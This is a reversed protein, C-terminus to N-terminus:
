RPKAVGECVVVDDLPRCRRLDVGAASLMAGVDESDRYLYLTEPNVPGAAATAGEAACDKTYRALYASNTPRDLRAAIWDIEMERWRTGPIDEGFLGGCEFSPYQFISAHSGILQQWAGRNVTAAQGTASATRMAVQMPVVDILQLAACAALITTAAIPRYGRAVTVILLGVLAYVAPWVFRGSGRFVSLARVAAQPLDVHIWETTGLGVRNSVAFLVAVALMAALVGHVRLGAALLRWRALAIVLLVILGAGLYCDGEWQYLGAISPPQTGLWRGLMTTPLPVWPALLNLSYVGYDDFGRGGLTFYGLLAAVVAMTGIMWAAGIAVMRWTWFGRRRQELLLALTPLAAMAALYPHITLVFAPLVGYLVVKRPALRSRGARVYNSLALLLVFHAMLSAHGFRLFLMPMWCLLILGAGHQVPRRVGLAFLLRSGAIVQLALCLSVWFGTYIPPISAPDHLLRHLVKMPMALLPLADALLLNGREPFHYNGIATLPWRWMDRAYYFWAIQGQAADGTLERWYRGSGLIYQLDLSALSFGVAALVVLLVFIRGPRVENSPPLLAIM